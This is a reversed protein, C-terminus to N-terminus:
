GCAAWPTRSRRRGRVHGRGARRASRSPPWLTAASPWGIIRSLGPRTAGLPRTLTCPLPKSGSEMTRTRKSASANSCPCLPPVHSLRVPVTRQVGLEGHRFRRAARARGDDRLFAAAALRRGGLEDGREAGGARGDDALRGALGSVGRGYGRGPEPRALRDVDVPATQAPSRGGGDGSVAGPRDAAGADRDAQGRNARRGQHKDTRLRMGRGRSGVLHQPKVRVRCRVRVGDLGAM